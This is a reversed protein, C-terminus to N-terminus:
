GPGEGEADVVVLTRQGAELQQDCGAAELTPDNDIEYDPNLHKNEILDGVPDIYGVEPIGLTLTKDQLCEWWVSTCSGPGQM